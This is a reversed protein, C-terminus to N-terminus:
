GSFPAANGAGSGQGAERRLKKGGFSVQSTAHARGSCILRAPSVSKTAQLPDFSTCDNWSELWPLSVVWCFAPPNNRVPMFGYPMTVWGSPLRAKTASRRALVDAHEIQRRPRPLSRRMTTPSTRSPSNGAVSASIPSATLKTVAPNVTSPSWVHTWQWRSPLLMWFGTAM